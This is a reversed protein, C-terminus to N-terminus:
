QENEIEERINTEDYGVVCTDNNIVLTPFSCKPNWRMIEKKAKEKKEEEELRDVDVYSYDVGLENLLKKTKRCWVCTSLAYLVISGTKKGEVHKMDM